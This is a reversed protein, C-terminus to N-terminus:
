RIMHNDSFPNSILTGNAWEVKGDNLLYHKIKRQLSTEEPLDEFPIDRRGYVWDLFGPSDNEQSTLVFSNQFQIIRSSDPLLKKLAPALLWSGCIMDAKAFDPYYKDFFDRADQYSKRLNSSTMNANSPIHISILKKDDEVIMEYELDGIRFEQMSIQRVAWWGWVYKYEGYIKKHYYLFRSFFKMTEIYIDDLIGMDEYKKYTNCAAHLQCALMKLGKEDPALFETLGEIAKKWTKPNNMQTMETEISSFDINDEYKVVKDQVEKPVDILNCLESIQMKLGREKIELNGNNM